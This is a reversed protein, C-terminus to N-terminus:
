PSTARAVAPAVGEITAQDLARLIISPTLLTPLVIPNPRNRPYVVVLPV